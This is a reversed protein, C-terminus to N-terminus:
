VGGSTIITASNEAPATLAVQFSGVEHIIDQTKKDGTGDKAKVL